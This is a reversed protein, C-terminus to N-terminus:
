VLIGYLWTQLRWPYQGALRGAAGRANGCIDRELLILIIGYSGTQSGTNETYM